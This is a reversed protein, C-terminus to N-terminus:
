GFWNSVIYHYMVFIIISLLCSVFLFYLYHHLTTMIVNKKSSDSEIASTPQYVSLAFATILILIFIPFIVFFCIFSDMNALYKFIYDLTFRVYKSVAAFVDSTMTQMIDDKSKGNKIQSGSKVISFIGIVIVIIVTILVFVVFMGIITRQIYSFTASFYFWMLRGRSVNDVMSGLEILRYNIDICSNITVLIFTVLSITYPDLPNYVSSDM